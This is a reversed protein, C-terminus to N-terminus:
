YARIDDEVITQDNSDLRAAIKRLMDAISPKDGGFKNTFTAIVFSAGIILSHYWDNSQAIEQLVYVMGGIGATQGLGGKNKM